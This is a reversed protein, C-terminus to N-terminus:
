RSPDHTEQIQKPTHPSNRSSSDNSLKQLWKIPQMSTHRFFLLSSEPASATYTDLPHLSNFTHRRHFAYKNTPQEPQTTNRPLTHTSIQQFHAWQPLQTHPYRPCSRSSLPAGIFCIPSSGMTLIMCIAQALDRLSLPADWWGVKM